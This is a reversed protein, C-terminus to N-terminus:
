ATRRRRRTRRKLEEHAALLADAILRPEPVADRAATLGFGLAGAYSEVTVNLGLGHQVISLPWHRVIRAGAFYLPSEPGPVNSIVLNAFPPVHDAAKTRGVLAALVQLLWPTGIAPFDLPVVPRSRDTSAKVVASADRIAHLRRVPDAIDTALGIRVMTAQTTYETNGAERLSVPVAALLPQDPLGGHRALYRRLAGACLALVVDNVKADHAAAISKIEALPVSVGAFARDGTIAVNLLTKPAFRPVQAIRDTTKGPPQSAPGGLARVTGPLGRVFAAYQAVDHRVAAGTLAVLGPHGDGGADRAPARGMRRGRPVADLLVRSLTVAAKGDLVAHHIKTYYAPQGSQLGDIIYVMWLPRSRDLLLAHLGAVCEDLQALTGPRPLTVRQIHFDLDVKDAQVWVPNAFQLPFEALQRSLVPAFPVRRAYLQVVDKFFDGRYGDPLQLLSVSGVHMPTSPTELHLFVGDLGSLPEM